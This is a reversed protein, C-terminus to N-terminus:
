GLLPFKHACLIATKEYHDLCWMSIGFSIRILQTLIPLAWEYQDNWDSVWEFGYSLLGKKNIKLTNRSILRALQRM